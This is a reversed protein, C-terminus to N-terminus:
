WKQNIFSSVGGPTGARFGANVLRIKEFKEIWSHTHSTECPRQPSTQHTRGPPCLGQHLLFPTEPSCHLFEDHSPARDRTHQTGAPGDHRPASFSASCVWRHGILM